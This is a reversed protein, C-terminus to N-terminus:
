YNKHLQVSKTAVISRYAGDIAQRTKPDGATM